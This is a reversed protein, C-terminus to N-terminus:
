SRCPLRELEARHGRRPPDGAQGRASRGPYADGAVSDDGGLEIESALAFSTPGLRAIVISPSDLEIRGALLKGSSICSGSTRPSGAAPPARWCESTMRPACNWGTSICSRGTGASPRRFARRVRHSLRNARAGMGQNRGPVRARPRARAQRGADAAAAPGAARCHLVAPNQRSQAASM